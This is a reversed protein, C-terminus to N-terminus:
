NLSRARASTIGLLIGGAALVALLLYNQGSSTDGTDLSSETLAAGSGPGGSGTGGIGAADGSGDGDASAGTAGEDARPDGPVYASTGFNNESRFNSGAGGSGSGEGGRDRPAADRRGTDM